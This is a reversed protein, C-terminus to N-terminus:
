ERAKKGSSGIAFIVRKDPDIGAFLHTLQPNVRIAGALHPDGRGVATGCQSQGRGSRSTPMSSKKTLGCRRPEMLYRQQAQVNEFALKM